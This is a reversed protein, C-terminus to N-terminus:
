LRHVKEVLAEKKLAKMIQALHNRDKVHLIFNMLSYQDDKDESTVSDIDTQTTAIKSAITALSGRLNKVELQIETLFSGEPEESWHVDLLKDSQAKIKRINACSERHIMLGKEASLYGIIEDGPIPHCCNAFQVAFGETGNIPLAEGYINDPSDISDEVGLLIDHIKKAVLPALRRGTGLDQFMESKSEIKLDSLIIVFQAESLGELQMNFRHLARKLIEKGLLIADEAELDRMYHRIQTRAKATKVFQLWSPNPKELRGRVIEVTNGSHLITRLPRLKNDIHCSVASHGVNSHVAYAFDLATAGRPLSIIEGKPTFVYIVDPFLDIKVNELFDLSNGASKQIELLNKVWEQAKQDVTDSVPTESGDQQKYLWHAAIGHEAVDHMETTRIQVELRASSFPGFLTTHLAQYGNSKPIAIYDKFRNPLPKYLSHMAGLARYCSDPNDVILRFAFIDLIENFHKGKNKMKKYLSYLHKERGFVRGTIQEQELRHEITHTIQNIIENRHGRAKALAKELAAYRMPYIIKFCLDELEIRISNIGLRGAIPAFFELTEQAIRKQKDLRMVGLTRMNHLRDALKILIVRIDRSMAMIMKRFNEAKAQQPTSFMMKTLKTVGEVIEAVSEGFRDTIDEKTYPTDEIVDHLLAAIISDQDLKIQALIEAVAVPHWIYDGGAKRKQGDHALRGFEFADKIREVHEQNLYTSVREILVDTSTPTPM